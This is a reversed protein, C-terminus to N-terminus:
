WCSREERFGNQSGAQHSNYSPLRIKSADRYYRADTVGEDYALAVSPVLLHAIREDVMCSPM